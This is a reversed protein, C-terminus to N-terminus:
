NKNFIKKVAKEFINNDKKIMKESASQIYDKKPLNVYITQRNSLKQMGLKEKAVQEIYNFNLSNEISVKLQENEKQISSLEKKMSRIESFEENIKSNRYSITLLVVFAAVIVLTSKFRKKREDATIKKEQKSVDKVVKLKEKKNKYTQETKRPSTGYQYNSKAM